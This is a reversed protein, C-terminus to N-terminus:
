VGTSEDESKSQLGVACRCVSARMSISISGVNCRYISSIGKGMWHGDSGIGSRPDPGAGGGGSPSGAAEGGAVAVRVIWDGADAGGAETFAEGAEVGGGGGNGGRRLEAAAPRHNGGGFAFSEGM